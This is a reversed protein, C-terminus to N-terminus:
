AWRCAWKPALVKREAPRTAARAKKFAACNSPPQKTLSCRKIRLKGQNITKGILFWPLPADPHGRGSAVPMADRAKDASPLTTGPAFTIAGANEPAHSQGRNEDNDRGGGSQSVSGVIPRRARGVTADSSTGRQQPTPTAEAGEVAGRADSRKRVNTKRNIPETM